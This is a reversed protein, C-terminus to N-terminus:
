QSGSSSIQTSPHVKITSEIDILSVNWVTELFLPLMDKDQEMKKAVDESCPLVYVMLHLM